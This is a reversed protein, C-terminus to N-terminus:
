ERKILIMESVNFDSNLIVRKAAQSNNSYYRIACTNPPNLGLNDAHLILYNDSGEDLALVFKYPKGTLPQKVLIWNGNYNLSITDNDIQQHDFVELTITDAKMKIFKDQHVVIERSEDKTPIIKPAPALKEVEIKKKEPYIVKYYHPIEVFFVNKPENMQLFDNMCNIAGIGFRNTLNILKSNYYYYNKGYLKHTVPVNDRSMYDDLIISFSKINKAVELLKEKQATELKYKNIDLIQRIFNNGAAKVNIITQTVTNKDDKRLAKFLTTVDNHWNKFVGYIPAIKHDNGSVKEESNNKNTVTQLEYQLNQFEDYLKVCDELNKYVKKLGEMKTLDATQLVKPITHREVELADIIKKMKAVVDKLKTQESGSLQNSVQKCDDYLKTPPVYYFAGSKDDFIPEPFDANSINNLQYNDLDVHKNLEQNYLELLRHIILMGHTCENAFNIYYNEPITNKMSVPQQAQVINMVVFMVVFIKIYKM